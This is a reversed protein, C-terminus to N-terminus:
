PPGATTLAAAATTLLIVRPIPVAGEPTDLLRVAGPTEYWSAARETKADIYRARFGDSAYGGAPRGSWSPAARPLPWGARSPM